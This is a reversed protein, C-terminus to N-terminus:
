CLPSPFVNGELHTCSSWIFPKLLYVKANARYKRFFIEKHFLQPINLRETAYLDFPGRFRKKRKMRSPFFVTLIIKAENRGIHKDHCLFSDDFLTQSLGLTQWQFGHDAMAATFHPTSKFFSKSPFEAPFRNTYSHVTIGWGLCYDPGVVFLNSSLSFLPFGDTTHRRGLNVLWLLLLPM